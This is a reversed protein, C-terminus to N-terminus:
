AVKGTFTAYCVKNNDVDLAEIIFRVLTSKGTGAFGAIVTYKEHNRHREVAIKLGEEQKRTLEM